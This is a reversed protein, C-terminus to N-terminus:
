KGDPRRLLTITLSSAQGGKLDVEGRGSDWGDALVRVKATGSAVRSVTISGKDNTPRVEEAGSTFKIKVEAQAVPKGDGLVRVTLSAPKDKGPKGAAEDPKGTDGASAPAAAPKHAPEAAQPASAACLVLATVLVRLMNLPVPPMPRLKWARQMRATTSATM